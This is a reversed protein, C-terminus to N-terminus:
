PCPTPCTGGCDIGTEAGDQMGNACVDVPPVASKGLSMTRLGPIGFLYAGDAGTVELTDGKNCYTARQPFNGSPLHLITKGDPLVQYTGTSGGTESVDFFCRCGDPDEPIKDCVMNPYSGENLGAAKVFPELQKCVGVPEGVPTGTEDLAMRGDMAGFQRMCIAPFDMFYTGTRAVGLSYRGTEEYTLTARGIPGSEYFFSPQKAQIKPGGDTVLLFCWDWSAPEVVPTRAAPVEGPFLRPDKTQAYLDEICSPHGPSLTWSGTPKAGGCDGLEACLPEQKCAPALSTLLCCAAIVSTKPITMRKTV